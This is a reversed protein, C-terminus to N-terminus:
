GFKAANFLPRWRYEAPRGDRQANAWMELLYISDVQYGDATHDPQLLHDRSFNVLEAPIVLVIHMLAVAVLTLTFSRDIDQFRGLEVSAAAREEAGADDLRGRRLWCTLRCGAYILVILPVVVSVVFYVWVHALELDRHRYTHMPGFWRFYVVQIM